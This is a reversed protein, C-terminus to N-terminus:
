RDDEKDEAESVAEQEANLYAKCGQVFSSDDESASPAAASATAPSSTTAGDCGTGASHEKAWAFGAEHGSCDTTCGLDGYADGYTGARIEDTREAVREERRKSEGEAHCRYLLGCAALVVVWGGCGIGDGQAMTRGRVRPPHM